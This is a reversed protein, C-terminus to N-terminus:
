SFRLVLPNALLTGGFNDSRSEYFRIKDMGRRENFL